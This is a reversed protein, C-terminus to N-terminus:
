EAKLRIEMLLPNHDSYKFALQQTECALVEVNASVIFGDIVYYQFHATDAGALPRDLSRCTAHDADTVLQMGAQTFADGDLVGPQWLGATAPYKASDVSPFTQNFDGGAIVYNGADAEQRLLNLLMGTQAAKGEGDDYAELHLNVLVLQRDTGSLPIRSIMACRKLNATRVPWSFPVPLQVRVAETVPLRTMTQLGSRIKGLPPWPFPVFDVHYNYAFSSQYGSLGSALWDGERVHASRASDVDVEQLLLLDPALEKLCATMAAMNRQVGATGQTLVRKGGDMFFDATEDLAGYGINWIAVRLTDGPAATQNAQGSVSMPTKEEPKFETLTLYGVLGGFGVAAILVLCLLIKFLTKFVAKM